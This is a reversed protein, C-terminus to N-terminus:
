RVTIERFARGSNGRVHTLYFHAAVNSGDSNVDTMKPLDVDERHSKCRREVSKAGRINELSFM